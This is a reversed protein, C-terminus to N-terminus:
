PLVCDSIFFDLFVFLFAVCAFPMFCLSCLLFKMLVWSSKVDKVKGLLGIVLILAVRNVVCKMESCADVETEHFQPYLLFLSFFFILPGEVLM